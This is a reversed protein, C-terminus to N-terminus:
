GNMRLKKMCLRAASGLSRDQNLCPHIYSLKPNRLVDGRNVELVESGTLADVEGISDINDHFVEQFLRQRELRFDLRAKDKEHKSKCCTRKYLQALFNEPRQALALAPREHSSPTGCRSFPTGCGRLPKDKKSGKHQHRTKKM